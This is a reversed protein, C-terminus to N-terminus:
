YLLQNLKNAYEYYSGKVLQKTAVVPRIYQLDLSLQRGEVKQKLQEIETKLGVNGASRKM